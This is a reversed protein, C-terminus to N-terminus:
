SELILSNKVQTGRCPLATPRQGRVTEIFTGHKGAPNTGAFVDGHTQRLGKPWWNGRLPTQIYLSTISPRRGRRIFRSLPLMLFCCSLRIGFGMRFGSDSVSGRAERSRSNHSRFFRKDTSDVLPSCTRPKQDEISGSVRDNRVLDFEPLNIWVRPSDNQDEETLNMRLQYRRSPM